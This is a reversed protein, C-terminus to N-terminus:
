HYDVIEIDTAGQATWRFCVRWQDNVRIGYQGKRDRRLAELRHSPPLNLDTLAAATVVRQLRMRARRQIDLPLRRVPAGRFIGETDRDRFRSVIRHQSM